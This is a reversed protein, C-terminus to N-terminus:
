GSRRRRRRRSQGLVAAAKRGLPALAARATARGRWDRVPPKRPPRRTASSGTTAPSWCGPPSAPASGAEWRYQAAWHAHEYGEFQEVAEAHVGVPDQLTKLTENVVLLRGGPKLM